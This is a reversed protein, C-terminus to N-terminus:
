CIIGSSPFGDTMERLLLNYRDFIPRFVAVGPDTLLQASYGRFGNTTDTYRFGSAISILPAHILSGALRRDLPTNVAKGGILYRSGQILDFGEKLKEVFLDIARVNDKGNGDVTIIGRYGEDLCWAYGMRLQASLQGSDTKVLLARVELKDLLAPQMSGDTSGGDAMGVDVSPSLDRIRELQGLIRSGENIVPIVLAFDHAKPRFVVAEHLPVGGARSDHPKTM